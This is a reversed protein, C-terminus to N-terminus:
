TIKMNSYRHSISLLDESISAETSEKTFFLDM